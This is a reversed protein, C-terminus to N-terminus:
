DLYHCKGPPVPSFLSFGRDPYDKDPGLNSSLVEPIYTKPAITVGVWEIYAGSIFCKLSFEFGRFEETLTSSTALVQTLCQGM